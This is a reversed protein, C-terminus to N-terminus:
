ILLNHWWIQNDWGMTNEKIKGTLITNQIELDEWKALLLKYWRGERIKKKNILKVAIVGQRTKLM